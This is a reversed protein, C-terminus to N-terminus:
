TEGVRERVHRKELDRWKVETALVEDWRDMRFLCQAQIGLANAVQDTAQIQTALEEAQELHPIAQDYEGVYMLALGAGRLTDIRERPDTSSEDQSIQLRRQAINLHQRLLSRGDLVNALAGLARSLLIADDIEEAIDVAAQAYNQAVDWDPPSQNRWAEVSLAVLLRVTEPDPTGSVMSQLSDELSALSAQSAQSIKQFSEADVSWKAETAIQIIKRHLRVSVIRESDSLGQWLVLAQQYFTIAEAFDRVLRCVDGLEEQLAMHIESKDGPPILELATRLNQAAEDYAYVAIAQRSAQRCYEIAKERQGALTFHHALLGYLGELREPYLSEMAEGVRHHFERRRKLLITEYVAEQTLPNRFMYEVEPVRASERIMDLQLLTAVHKNLEPSDENVAQLVKHYFSRGIVSAMQLISRTAEELRDM